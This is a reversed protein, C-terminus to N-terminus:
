GDQSHRRSPLKSIKTAPDWTSEKIYGCDIVYIVDDLTHSTEAINTTILVRGKEGRLNFRREVEKEGLRRYVTLVPVESVSIRNIRKLDKIKKATNEIFAEGHLFVLISGKNTKKLIEIVLKAIVEPLKSEKPSDKRYEWFKERERLDQCLWCDCDSVKQDNGWFHVYYNHKRRSAHDLNLIDAKVGTEKFTDRFREANVTASSIVVKLNPYRPLENKLLMLITEINCSRQHAEDVMILSYQSLKGERIWNRLSGDTVPVEINWRDYREGEEGGGHRLGIMNGPGVKSGLLKEAIFTPIREVASTLPETIIIQGQRILKEILNGKYGKPSVILRLPLFTSKGSGTPAVVVVVQNNELKEYFALIDKDTIGFEIESLDVEKSEKELKREGRSAFVGQSSNFRSASFGTEIPEFFPVKVKGREVGHIQRCGPCREPRSEGKEAKLIFPLEDYRFTERCDKCVYKKAKTTM